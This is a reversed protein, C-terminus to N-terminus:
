WVGQNQLSNKRKEALTTGQKTKQRKRIGRNIKRGRSDRRMQKHTWGQVNAKVHCLQNKKLKKHKPIHLIYNRKYSACKAYIM